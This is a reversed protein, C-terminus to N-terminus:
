AERTYVKLCVNCSHETETRTWTYGSMSIYGEGDSIDVNKTAEDAQYETAVPYQLGPSKIKVMIAFRQGESVKVPEDLDVTYYGGNDFKGTKDPSWSILSSPGDFTEIIHIEYETDKGTAYFGVASLMEDRRAEYVNAFYCTDSGYGIQGVWGCQDTQYIDNYNGTNEVRSYTVCNNGLNADEYSVYFIGEEGFDPGWSNQCIFAGDKKIDANFKAAPYNDDWGIILIDHNSRAKGVYCYTSNIKNFFVSSSVTNQLDMYLSSQVAGHDYVARKVAEYDKDKIMQIEQVHKVPALGDPSVGDGYPDDKELVPGQWGALYAMAMTYDGGDNQNKAFHNQLSIHDASFVLHERPLLSAELASSTAVAWCTGLEGQNKIVPARAENRSDYSAPLKEMKDTAARETHDEPASYQNKSGKESERQDQQKKGDLLGRIEPEMYQFAGYGILVIILIGIFTQIKKIM